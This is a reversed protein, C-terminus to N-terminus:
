WARGLTVGTTRGDAVAGVQVAQALSRGRSPAIAADAVGVSALVVSTIFTAVFVYQQGLKGHTVIDPREAVIGGMVGESIAPLVAFLAGRSWEGAVGHAAVPALTLGTMALMTGGSRVGDTEGLAMITAGAALSGLLAGAGTVLAPVDIASPEEESAAHAPRAALVLLALLAAFARRVLM